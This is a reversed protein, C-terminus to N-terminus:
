FNLMDHCMIEVLRNRVHSGRVIKLPCILQEYIHQIDKESPIEPLAPIHEQTLISRLHEHTITGDNRIHPIIDQWSIIYTWDDGVIPFLDFPFYVNLATGFVDRTNILKKGILNPYFAMGIIGTLTGTNDVHVGTIDNTYHEIGVRELHQLRESIVSDAPIGDTVDFGLLYARDRRSSFWLRVGLTSLDSPLLIIEPILSDLSILERTALTPLYDHIRLRLLQQSYYDKLILNWLNPLLGKITAMRMMIVGLNTDNLTHIPELCDNDTFSRLIATNNGIRQFLEQYIPINLAISPIGIADDFSAEGLIISNRLQYRPCTVTRDIYPKLVSYISDDSNNNLMKPAKLDQEALIYVGILEHRITILHRGDQAYYMDRGHKKLLFYYLTDAGRYFPYTSFYIILATIPLKLVHRITSLSVCEHIAQVISDMISTPIELCPDGLSNRRRPHKEYMIGSSDTVICDQTSMDIM